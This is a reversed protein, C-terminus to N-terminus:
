DPDKDKSKEPLKSIIFEANAKLLFFANDSIFRKDDESHEAHEDRGKESAERRRELQEKRQEELKKIFQELKKRAKVDKGQALAKQAQDLKEDLDKIFEHGRLWGLSTAQHKLSILRIVLDAPSLGAPSLMPALTVGQFSNEKISRASPYVQRVMGQPVEEISDYTTGLQQNIRDMLQGQNVPMVWGQAYFTTPGPLYSSSLSFGALTQGPQLAGVPPSYTEDLNKIKAAPYWDITYAGINSSFFPSGDWLPNTPQTVTSITGGDDISKDQTPLDVSSLM